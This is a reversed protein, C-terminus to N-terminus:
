GPASSHISRRKLFITPIRNQAMWTKAEEVTDFLLELHLHFKGVDAPDRGAGGPTAYGNVNETRM